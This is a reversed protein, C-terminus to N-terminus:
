TFVSVGGPGVLLGVIVANPRLEVGSGPIQFGVANMVAKLGISLGVGAIVGVASALIGVVPIPLKLRAVAAMLGLVAMGGCKDYIMRGMAAAPKISIGGTDFTIAKGVALLPKAAKKTGKWELVIMRPPTTKNAAGVALIGGMGLKAM